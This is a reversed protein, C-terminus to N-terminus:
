YAPTIYPLLPTIFAYYFLIGQPKLNQPKDLLMCCAHAGATRVDAEQACAEVVSQRAFTRLLRPCSVERKATADLLAAYWVKLLESKTNYSNCDPKSGFEARAKM